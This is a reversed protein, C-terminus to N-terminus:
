LPRYRGCGSLCGDRERRLRSTRYAAGPLFTESLMQNSWIRQYRSLGAVGDRFVHELYIRTETQAHGQRFPSLTEDSYARAPRDNECYLRKRHRADRRFPVNRRQKDAPRNSHELGSVDCLTQRRCRIDGSGHLAAPDGRRITPGVSRCNREVPTRRQQRPAPQVGTRGVRRRVPLRYRFQSRYNTDM